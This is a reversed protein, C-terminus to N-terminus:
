NTHFILPSLLFFLPFNPVWHGYIYIYIYIYIYFLSLTLLLSISFSLFYVLLSGTGAIFPSHWLPFLLPCLLWRTPDMATDLPFFPFFLPFFLWRGYMFLSLSLSLSFSLSLGMKIHILPLFSGSVLFPFFSLSPLTLPSIFHPSPAFLSPSPFFYPFYSFSFLLSPFSLSFLFIYSFPSLTLPFVPYNPYVPPLFISCFSIYFPSSPSTLPLSPFIYSLCCFVM